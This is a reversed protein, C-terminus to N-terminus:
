EIFILEPYDNIAIQHDILWQEFQDRTQEQSDITQLVVVEQFQGDDDLKCEIDKTQFGHDYQGGTVELLDRVPCSAVQNVTEPQIDPGIGTAFDISESHSLQYLYNVSYALALALTVGM